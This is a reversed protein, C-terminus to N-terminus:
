LEAPPQSLIFAIRKQYQVHINVFFLAENVNLMSLTEAGHLSFAQNAIINAKQTHIYGIIHLTQTAAETHIHLIDLQQDWVGSNRYEIILLRLLDFGRWWDPRCRISCERNFIVFVRHFM